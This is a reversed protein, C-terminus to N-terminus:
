EAPVPANEEETPAPQACLEKLAAIRKDLPPHTSLWGRSEFGSWMMVNAHGRLRPTAKEEALKELVSIMLDPRTVQASIADATYERARSFRLIELESLPTFLWRAIRKLGRFLLFFTLAEQIGRAHVMRAMDNSAVHGLEHAIVAHLEGKTLKEVAGKSIAILTNNPNTGMAFANIEENPFWGIFPIPPIGMQDTMRRTVKYIAHEESFFTVRMAGAAGGGKGVSFATFISGGLWAWLPAGILAWTNSVAYMALVVPGFVLLGFPGAVAMAFTSSTFIFFGGLLAGLAAGIVLLLVTPLVPHQPFRRPRAM